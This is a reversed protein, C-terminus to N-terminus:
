SPQLPFAPPNSQLTHTRHAEPILPGSWHKLVSWGFAFPPEPQLSAEVPTNQSAPKPMQPHDPGHATQKKISLSAKWYFFPPAHAHTKPDRLGLKRSPSPVPCVQLSGKCAIRVTASTSVSPSCGDTALM